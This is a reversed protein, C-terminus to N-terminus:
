NDVVSVAHPIYECDRLASGPFNWSVTGLSEESFIGNTDVIQGPMELTIVSAAVVM